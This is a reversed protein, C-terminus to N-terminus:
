LDMVIRLYLNNHEKPIQCTIDIDEHYRCHDFLDILNYIKRLLSSNCCGLGQLLTLKGELASSDIM